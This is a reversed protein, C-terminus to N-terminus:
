RDREVWEVIRWDLWRFSPDGKASGVFGLHGGCPVVIVEVDSASRTSMCRNSRFIPDNATALITAPQRISALGPGVQTAAYYEDASTYGAAPAIVMEDIQKLRKPRQPIEAPVIEPYREWRQLM